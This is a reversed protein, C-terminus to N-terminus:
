ERQKLILTMKALFIQKLIFTVKCKWYLNLKEELKVRLLYKLKERRLKWHLKLKTKKKCLLPLKTFANYRIIIENWKKILTDFGLAVSMKFRLSYLKTHTRSCLKLAHNISSLLLYSRFFPRLRTRKLKATLFSSFLCKYLQRRSSLETPLSLAYYICTRLNLGRHGCFFVSACNEFICEFILPHWTQGLNQYQLIIENKRLLM